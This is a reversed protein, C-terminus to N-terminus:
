KHSLRHVGQKFYKTCGRIQFYAGSLLCFLCRFFLVAKLNTYCLGGKDIPYNMNETGEKGLGMYGEEVALARVENQIRPVWTSAPTVRSVIQRLASLVSVMQNKKSLFWTLYIPNKKNTQKLHPQSVINWFFFCLGLVNWSAPTSFTM